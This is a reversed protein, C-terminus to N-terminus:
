LKEYGCNGKIAKIAKIKLVGEIIPKTTVIKINKLQLDVQNNNADVRKLVIDGNEDENSEINASTIETDNEDLIRL